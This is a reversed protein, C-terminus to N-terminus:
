VEYVYEALEWSCDCFRCRLAFLRRIWAGDPALHKYLRALTIRTL